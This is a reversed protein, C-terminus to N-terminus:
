MGKMWDPLASSIKEPKFEETAAYGCEETGRKMGEEEALKSEGFVKQLTKNAAAEVDKQLLRYREEHEDEIKTDRGNAITCVVQSSRSGNKMIKEEEFRTLAQDFLKKIGIQGLPKTREEKRHLREFYRTSDIRTLRQKENKSMCPLATNALAVPHCAISQSPEIWWRISTEDVSVICGDPYVHCFREEGEYLAVDGNKFAELDFPIVRTM